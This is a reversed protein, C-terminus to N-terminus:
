LNFLFLLFACAIRKSARSDPFACFARESACDSGDAMVPFFLFRKNSFRLAGFKIWILDTLLYISRFKGDMTRDTVCIQRKHACSKGCIFVRDFLIDCLIRHIGDIKNSFSVYVYARLSLSFSDALSHYLYLKQTNNNICVFHIHQETPTRHENETSIENRVNSQIQLGIRM